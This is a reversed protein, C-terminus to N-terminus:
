RLTKLKTRFSNDVTKDLIKLIAGGIINPDFKATIIVSMKLRASLKQEINKLEEDSIPRATILEGTTALSKVQLIKQYESIIKSLKELSREKILFNIFQRTKKSIFSALVNSLLEGKENITLKPNAILHKLGNDLATEAVILDVLIKQDQHPLALALQKTSFSM